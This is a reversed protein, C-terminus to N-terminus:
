SSLICSSNLIIMKRGNIVAEGFIHGFACPFITCPLRAEESEKIQTYVNINHQIGPIQKMTQKVITSDTNTLVWLHASSISYIYM